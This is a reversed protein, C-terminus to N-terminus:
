FKEVLIQVNGSKPHESFFYIIYVNFFYIKQIHM